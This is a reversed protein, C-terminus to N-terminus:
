YDVKFTYFGVEMGFIRRMRERVRENDNTDDNM